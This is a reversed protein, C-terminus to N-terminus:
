RGEPVREQLFKSFRGRTWQPSARRAYRSPTTGTVARFAHIFHPQDHFGCAVAIQALPMRRRRLLGIARQVRLRVVFRHPPLGVTQRFLRAFHFPSIHAQEALALLPVDDALHSDIFEIVSRLQFSNLKARPAMVKPKAVGYHALLHLVLGITVTEVYLLGNPIDASLEALFRRAYLALIPDAVSRQSVFEIRGAPLGDQVVNAVFTPNLIISCEEFKTLCRPTNVQGYTVLHSEGPHIVRDDWGRGGKMGLTTSEAGINVGIGHGIVSHQPFERPELRHAEVVIGRWGPLGSSHMVAEPRAASFLRGTKANVLTREGALQKM